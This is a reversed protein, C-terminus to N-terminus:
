LRLFYGHKKEQLHVVKIEKTERKEITRTSQYLQNSDKATISRCGAWLAACFCPVLEHECALELRFHSLIKSRILWFVEGRWTSLIDVGSERKGNQTLKTSCLFSTIWFSEKTGKLTQNNSPLNAKSFPQKLYRSCDALSTNEECQSRLLVSLFVSMTYVPVSSIFSLLMHDFHQMWQKFALKDFCKIPNYITSFHWLVRYINYWLRLSTPQIDIMISFNM